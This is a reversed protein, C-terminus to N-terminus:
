EKKQIPLLKVATGTATVMLMNNALTMYDIDMGVIADAGVRVAQDKIADLAASKADRLKKQFGSARTGFLDAIGAGLESLVGTGLVVEGTLVDLYETIARSEVSYTTTLILNAKFKALEAHKEEKIAESKFQDVNELAWKLNVRCNSCNDAANDNSHGCKPCVIMDFGGIKKDMAEEMRKEKDDTENM